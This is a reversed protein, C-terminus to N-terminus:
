TTTANAMEQRVHHGLHLLSPSQVITFLGTNVGTQQRIWTRVELAILSDMGLNGVPQDLPIAQPDKILFDALAGAIAKAITMSKDEESANSALLVKLSAKRPSKTTSAGVSRDLNHYIAMRLDREWAVRNFPSSIPTSTM